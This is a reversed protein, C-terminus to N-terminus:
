SVSIPAGAHGGTGDLEFLTVPVHGVRDRAWRSVVPDDTLFVVQTTDSLGVLHDLLDFQEGVPLGSLANDIIVPVTDERGDIWTTRRIRNALRTAMPVPGGAAEELRFELDRVRNLGLQYRREAGVVDPRGAAAVLEAIERRRAELVDPDTPPLTPEPSLAWSPRETRDLVENHAAIEREVHDRTREGSALAHRQRAVAVGQIARELRGELAGTGFGLRKLLDDLRAAAEAERERLQALECARRAIRGAEIRRNLVAVLQDPDLDAGGQASLGYSELGTGLKARAMREAAAAAEAQARAWDRRRAVGDPDIAEAHARVEAARGTLDDPTLLGVVEEWDVMAAARDHAAQELRKRDDSDDVEDLRRLHLGLWSGADTHSLAEQEAQNAAGLARRPLVILWWAMALAAVLMVIGVLVSVAQGALLAGVALAGVALAGPRFLREVKRQARLVALHAEEVAREAEEDHEDDHEVTASVRAYTANTRQIAEHAAWLRAQDIEAFAQVLPDPHDQLDGVAELRAAEAAKAADVAARWADVRALFTPPLEDPTAAVRGLDEPSVDPLPGLHTSLESAAAALDAWDAGATRLEEVSDLIQQDTEGAQGRDLLALEARAEDLRRRRELWSWRAEDDDACSIRRDLDALESRWGALQNARELLGVHEAHLQELAARAGVLEDRLEDASAPEGRGLDTPTLALLGTIAAPDQGLLDSPVPAPTGDDAYSAGTRDAFVRRGDSGVYVVSANPLSGTLADVITEILEIRDEPPLGAFVTFRPGFRVRDDDGPGYLVLQELRM